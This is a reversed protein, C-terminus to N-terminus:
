LRGRPAGAPAPYTYPDLSDLSPPPTPPPGGAPLDTAYLHWSDKITATFVITKETPGNDEVARTWSVADRIIQAEAGSLCLLVLVV